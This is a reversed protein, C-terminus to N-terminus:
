IIIENKKGELGCCLSLLCLFLVVCPDALRNWLMRVKATLCVSPVWPFSLYWLCNWRYSNSHYSFIFEEDRFQRRKWRNGMGVINDSNLYLWTFIVCLCLIHNNQMFFCRNIEFLQIYIWILGLYRLTLSLPM